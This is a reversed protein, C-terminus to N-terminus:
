MLLTTSFLGLHKGLGGEGEGIEEGPLTGLRVYESEGEELSDEDDVEEDRNMSKLLFSSDGDEGELEDPDRM